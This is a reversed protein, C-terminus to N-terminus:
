RLVHYVNSLETSHNASLRGTHLAHSSRSSLGSSESLFLLPHLSSPSPSPSLLHELTRRHFLWGGGECSHAPPPCAAAPRPGGCCRRGTGRGELGERSPLNAASRISCSELKVAWIQLPRPILAAARLSSPVSGPHPGPSPRPRERSPM